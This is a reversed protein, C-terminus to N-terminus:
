AANTIVFSFVRYGFLLWVIAVLFYFYIRVLIVAGVLRKVLWHWLWFHELKLFFYVVRMKIATNIWMTIQIACCFLAEFVHLNPAHTYITTCHKNPAKWTDRIPIILACSVCRLTTFHQVCLITKVKAQQQKKSMLSMIWTFLVYRSHPVIM